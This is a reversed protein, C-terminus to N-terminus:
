GAPQATMTHPTNDTTPMAPLAVEFLAPWNKGTLLLRRGAPDYAIGNLVGAKSCARDCGHDALAQRLSHGNVHAVVHGNAPDIVVIRDSHWINAWIRGDIYELENLQGVPQGHDTIALGRLRKFGQPDFFQLTSSGNSMILQHGNTALGWGQGHYSFDGLPKLTATDYIFGEGSKWTLQYLRDGLRALGEGFRKDPLSHTALVRGSRWDIKQLRSHGYGGTSEFLVPGDVVLGETFAQSDHPWRKLIKPTRGDPPAMIQANNSPEAYPTCAGLVALSLMVGLTALSRIIRM